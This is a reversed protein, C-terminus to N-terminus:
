KQEALTWEGRKSEAAAKLLGEKRMQQAAWRLDYQWTYLGNESREIETRRAEWVAKSVQTIGGSGGMARLAEEIWSALNERNMM